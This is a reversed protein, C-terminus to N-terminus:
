STGEALVSRLTTLIQDGSFPKTVFSVAGQQRAMERTSDQIDATAVIIRANEDIRRLNALVELGPMGHMIMDLFVVDPKELYYKEIATMGDEAETVINGDQQLITRLIRRSLASDDVLLIKAL